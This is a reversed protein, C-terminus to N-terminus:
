LDVVTDSASDDQHKRLQEMAALTADCYSSVATGWAEEKTAQRAQQLLQDVNQWDLMWNREESTQRLQTIVDDMRLLFAEHSDARYRRYPGTGLATEGSGIDLPAGTSWDTDIAGQGAAQNGPVSSVPSSGSGAEQGRVRRTKLPRRRENPKFVGSGWVAASIAGLIFAVIASGVFRPSVLASALGFGVAGTWCFATTGILARSSVEDAGMSRRKKQSGDNQTLHEDDVEVVIVTINDPGGRLNALDIMVQAAKDVELSDLLVALEDDEIQGTLGDSCVLFRDGVELDFPGELDVLVEPSPGLSRTIVNKPISKSFVSDSHVKGSAQMEWVLSHDFTLQELVGRRLRYVRSDGVHAVYAEGNVLVLSSATTGMNLFEPNSQGREYIAANALHVAESIAHEPAEERSQYYHMSIRDSAIKSALEGAAHAGMGDAVVFLHGRKNLREASEAILIALSDQNNARRMGVHTQEAFKM